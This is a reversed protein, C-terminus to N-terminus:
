KALNNTWYGKKQKAESEQQCQWSCYVWRNSKIFEKSCQKCKVKIIPNYNEVKKKYQCKYCNEKGLFDNDKRDVQCEPCLM